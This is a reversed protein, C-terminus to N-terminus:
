FISDLLSGKFKKLAKEELESIKADLDNHCGGKIEVDTGTEKIDLNNNLVLENKVAADGGYAEVSMSETPKIVASKTDCETYSVICDKHEISKEKIQCKDNNESHKGLLADMNNEGEKNNFENCFDSHIKMRNEEFDTSPTTRDSQLNETEVIALAANNLTFDETSEDVDMNVEQNIKEYNQLLSESSKNDDDNPASQEARIELHDNNDGTCIRKSKKIKTGSVDKNKRSKKPSRVENTNDIDPM